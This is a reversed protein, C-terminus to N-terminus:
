PAADVAADPPDWRGNECDKADHLGLVGFLIGAIAVAVLPDEVHTNSSTAAVSGAVGGVLLDAAAGYYVRNCTSRGEYTGSAILSCGALSTLLVLVLSRM